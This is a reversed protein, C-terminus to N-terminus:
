LVTCATKKVKLLNVYNSCRTLVISINSGIRSIGSFTSSAAAPSNSFFGIGISRRLVLPVGMREM